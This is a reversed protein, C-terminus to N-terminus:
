GDPSGGDVYWATVIRDLTGVSAYLIVSVLTVLVTAAWVTGYQSDQRANALLYGIGSGSALFEAVLVGMLATPLGIRAAAVFQPIAAPIRLKFMVQSESANLAHFVDLAATPTSRLGFAILVVCPFFVVLVAVTVTSVLGRGLVVVILPALAQLPVSQLVMAVPMVTAQASRSRLLLAGGVVAAVLGVLAGILAGPLTQWLAAFVSSRNAGSAGDNGLFFQFVAGPSKVFYSPLHFLALASWWGGVAIGVSVVLVAARSWLPAAGTGGRYRGNRLPLPEDKFVLRRLAGVALYCAAGLVTAVVGTGWTRAPQFETLSNLMFVGLGSSGGAFEGLIAGLVAAPAAIQIGSTIPPLAAPLEVKFVAQGRGGGVARVVDVLVPDIGTMGAITAVLVPFFAALAALSVKEVYPSFTVYFIPALAIPPACLLAVFPGSLLREVARVEVFLVGFLVASGVAVLLGPGVESLTTWTNAVLLSRDQWMQDAVAWPGPLTDAGFVQERALLQWLGITSAVIALVVAATLAARTSTSGSDVPRGSPLPARELSVAL